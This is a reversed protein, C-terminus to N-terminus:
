RMGFLIESVKNTRLKIIEQSMNHDVKSEILNGENGNNYNTGTLMSIAIMSGVCDILIYIWPKLKQSLYTGSGRGLLM